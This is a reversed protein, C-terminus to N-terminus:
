ASAGTFPALMRFYSGVPLAASAYRSRAFSTRLPVCARWCAHLGGRPARGPSRPLVSAPQAPPLRARLLLAQREVLRDLVRGVEGLRFGGLRLYGFLRLGAATTSGLAFGFGFGTSRSSSRTRPSRPELAQGSGGGSWVFGRGSEPAYMATMRTTPTPPAPSFASLRMISAPMWWTSNTATFVSMWASWTASAGVFIWMPRSMVSPRPEPASGSTPRRAASSARSASLRASRPESMTKTVAPSPPPVPDPAAGITASIARSSPARVTPM